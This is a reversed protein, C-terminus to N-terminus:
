CGRQSRPWTRRPRSMISDRGFSAFRIIGCLGTVGGGVEVGGQLKWGGRRQGGMYGLAYNAFTLAARAEAIALHHDLMAKSGSHSHAGVRALLTNTGKVFSLRFTFLHRHLMLYQTITHAHFGSPERLTSVAVNSLLIPVSSLFSGTSARIDRMIM